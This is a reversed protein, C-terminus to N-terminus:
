EEGTRRGPMETDMAIALVGRAERDPPYIERLARLLGERTTTPDIAAVPEHELLEAFTAYRTLGTIRTAVEAGDCRFRLADGVRLRERADDAVRVEVTKRGSVVLDFYRRRLRMHATPRNWRASWLTDAPGDSWLTRTARARDFTLGFRDVPPEGRDRWRSLAATFEEHLRRVGAQEVRGDAHLRAWSGDSTSGIWVHPETAGREVRMGYHWEGVLLSLILSTEGDLFPERPDTDTRTVHEPRAHADPAPRNPRRQGRAWMFSAGGEFRGRVESREVELVALAGAPAGPTPAWPTIIRGEGGILDPWTWPLDAVSCTALLRDYAAVPTSALEGDGVLVTPRYGCAHLNARATAAVEEDIEITTVNAPGLLDSLIAANYGTGTGVELVRHGPELCAATLMRAMVSPASSSSTPSGRGDTARGDDLQTTLPQDSYVARLWADPDAARDIADGDLTWVTDPLFRHRPVRAFASAIREPVGRARLDDALAATLRADLTPESAPKM